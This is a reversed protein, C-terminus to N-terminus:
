RLQHQNEDLSEASESLGAFYAAVAKIEAETLSVAIHQMLGNPDNHRTPPVLAAAKIKGDHPTAPKGRWAQLQATLYEASQGALPPFSAGVGMGAPGHCLTCEPINREWAGRLALWAGTGPAPREVPDVKVKFKPLQAFSRAVAAMEEDTLASAIPQMVPNKRGGAKFDQLQKHIYAEPLGALRPFGAAAQGKGDAGHCAICALAVPNSGGKQLITEGDAGQAKLSLLLLLWLGTMAPWMLKSRM